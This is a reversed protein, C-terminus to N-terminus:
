DAFSPGAINETDNVDATDNVNVIDNLDATDSVDTTNTVDATHPRLINQQKKANQYLKDAAMLSLHKKEITMNIPKEGRAKLASKIVCIANISASLLKNRKKAKLNNLLSFMEPDTSSNPLSRVLNLVNTLHPYKAINNPYRCHAIKRWMNDFSLKSLNQQENITFDLPLAM